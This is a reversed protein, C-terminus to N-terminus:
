INKGKNPMVNQCYNHSQACERIVQTQGKKCISLSLEHLLPKADHSSTTVKSPGCLSKMATYHWKKSGATMLIIASEYM